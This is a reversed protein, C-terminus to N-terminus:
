LQPLNPAGPAPPANPAPVPGPAAPAKGGPTPPAGHGPIQDLNNIGLYPGLKESGLDDFFAIFSGINPDFLVQGFFYVSAEDERFLLSMIAAMETKAEKSGLQPDEIYAQKLAVLHQILPLSKKAMRKLPELHRAIGPVTPEKKEGTDIGEGELPKTDDVDNPVIAHAAPPNHPPPTVPAL